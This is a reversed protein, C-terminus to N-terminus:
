FDVTSRYNLTLADYIPFQSTVVADKFRDYNKHVPQTWAVEAVASLRPLLYFELDSLSAIGETWMCAETGLFRAEEAESLGTSGNLTKTYCDNMLVNRDSEGQGYNLYHSYSPAVLGNLGAKCANLGHGAQTWSEVCVGPLDAANFDSSNKIDAFIEQWGIMKKGYKAALACMYKTFHYQLRMEKTVSGQDTLGLETMLAACASCRKWSNSFSSGTRTEDGGFHIYESDPFMAAIQKVINDLIDKTSGTTAKAVCLLDTNIGFKTWVGFSSTCSCALDHHANLIAAAHGPLDVEPVVIICKKHAYEVIEAIEEKTYFGSERDHGPYAPPNSGRYASLRTLDDDGEIEVRWGQDDTLHWHFRNLKYIAMIDLYHKIEEVTFFHRSVDLHLGRWRFRPEDEITLCPITWDEGVPSTGFIAPPMLQKLTQIAYLIGARTSAYVLVKTESITISYAEDGLASDKMFNIGASALSTMSADVGLRAAFGEALDAIESGFTMDYFVPAGSVKFNGTGIAVSNPYPILHVITVPTPPEPAYGSKLTPFDTSFNWIEGSWNRPSEQAHSSVTGSESATKTYCDSVTGANVGSLAISSNWSICKSVTSSNTINGVLGGANGSENTATPSGSSYCNFLSGYARGVLGGVNDTGTASARSYSNELTAAADNLGILGGVDYSTSSVTVDSEVGCRSIAGGPHWGAFGGVRRYSGSVSSGEVFCFSCKPEVGSAGFSGFMGGVIDKGSVTSGRVRCNEVTAKTRVYGILGGVYNNKSTVTCGEISVNRVITGAKRINGALAGGVGNFDANGVYSSKICVNEVITTESGGNGLDSALIGSADTTGVVTAGSITLDRVQGNLVGFISPLTGSSAITSITKGNGDFTIYKSYPSVNNLSEWTGGAFDVDDVMKFWKMEGDALLDHVAQLQYKDGILYPAYESGDDEAGAWQDAHTADIDILTPSDGEEYLPIDAPLTLFCTYIDHSPDNSFFHVLLDTGEPISEGRLTLIVDFCCISGASEESPMLKLPSAGDKLFDKSFYLDASRIGGAVAGDAFQAKLTLHVEADSPVVPEPTIEQTKKCGLAVVAAVVALIWIKKM